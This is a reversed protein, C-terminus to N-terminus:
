VLLLVVLLAGTQLLLLSSREGRVGRAKKTDAFLIHLTPPPPSTEKEEEKDSSRTKKTVWSGKTDRLFFYKLGNM